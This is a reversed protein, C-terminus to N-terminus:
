RVEKHYEVDTMPASEDHSHLKRPSTAVHELRIIDGHRVWQLWTTNDKGLKDAPENQADLTSNLKRIIWWNNEDRYPYLTIQQEIGYM